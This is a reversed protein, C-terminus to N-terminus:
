PNTMTGKTLAMLAYTHANLAHLAAAMVDPITAKVGNSLDLSAVVGDAAQLESAALDLYQGCNLENM